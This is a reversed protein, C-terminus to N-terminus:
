QVLMDISRVIQFQPLSIIEGFLLDFDYTVTIRFIDGFDCYNSTGISGDVCNVVITASSLDISNNFAERETVIIFYEPGCNPSCEPLCNSDTCNYIDPRLAGYRAGVRASNTITIASHFIRGLDIVGFFILLLLPLAIAFEVLEQGGRGFKQSRTVQKNGDLFIHQGTFIRMRGPKATSVLNGGM